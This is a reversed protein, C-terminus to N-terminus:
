TIEEKSLHVEQLQQPTFKKMIRKRAANIQKAPADPVKVQQRDAYSTLVVQKELIDFTYAWDIEIVEADENIPDALREGQRVLQVCDSETLEYLWADGATTSYLVFVGLEHFLAKKDFAAQEIKEVSSKLTVKLKEEPTLPRVAERPVLACCHKYKKGSRCPCKENRGIKAM